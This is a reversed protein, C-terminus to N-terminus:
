PCPTPPPRPRLNLVAHVIVALELASAKRVFGVRPATKPPSSCSSTGMAEPSIVGLVRRHESPSDLAPCPALGGHIYYGDEAIVLYLRHHYHCASLPCDFTSKPGLRAPGAAHPCRLCDPLLAFSILHAGRTEASRFRATGGASIGSTGARGGGGRGRRGSAMSRESESRQWVHGLGTWDWDLNSASRIV